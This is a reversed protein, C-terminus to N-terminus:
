CLRFGALVKQTTAAPLRAGNQQVLEACCLCALQASKHYDWGQTVGYLFAGAFLDGAGLTDIAKVARGEVRHMTSGDWALAGKSGLTIAFGRAHKKLEEAAQEVSDTDAFALAEEENCFILDLGTDGIMQEFGARFFKVMNVDSFTFATKVGHARAIELGKLATELTNPATVLYGEVYLWQANKLPEDALDAPSLGESAGLFTCMTREADPTVFVMCRGTDGAVENQQENHVGNNEMDKIFFDGTEDAAVRCAQYASGGLQAFGILSNAASGGCAQLLQQEPLAKKLEDQRAQDVLAMRGKEEGISELYADDVEYVMDVLAHGIGYLTYNAM